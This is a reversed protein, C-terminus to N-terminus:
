VQNGLVLHSVAAGTPFTWPAPNQRGGAGVEEGLFPIWMHTSLCFCPFPCTPVPPVSSDLVHPSDSVLWTFQRGGTQFVAVPVPSSLVLIDGVFPVSLDPPFAFSVLNQKSNIQFLIFLLCSNGDRFFPFITNGSLM